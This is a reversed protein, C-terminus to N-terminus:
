NFHYLYGQYDELYKGYLYCLDEPMCTESEYVQWHLQKLAEQIENRRGQEKYTRIIEDRKGLYDGYGRNLNIALRQYLEAVQKGLNRSGSHIVLYKTGDKAEDIEIFHNGGGLTGLSRELRKTDKRDYSLWVNTQDARDSWGRRSKCLLYSYKSKRQNWDYGHYEGRFLKNVNSLVCLSLQVGVKQNFILHEALRALVANFIGGVWHMFNFGWEKKSYLAASLNRESNLYDFRNM